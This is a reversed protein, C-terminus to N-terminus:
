YFSKKNSVTIPIIELRIGQSVENKEFCCTKLCAFAAFSHMFFGRSCVFRHKLADRVQEIERGIGGDTNRRSSSLPRAGRRGRQNSHSAECNVSLRDM